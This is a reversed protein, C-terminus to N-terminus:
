RWDGAAVFGAWFFPHTAGLDDRQLRLLRLSAERVAEATPLGEQLRGRYLERMWDRTSRDDVSWLSMVVTGAGAVQFARRLGLVGEGAEVQGVGTQCASLVAWEVGDLDMAAIEEATLIGDEALPGPCGVIEVPMDLDRVMRRIVAAPIVM